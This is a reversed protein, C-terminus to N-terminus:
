GLSDMGAQQMAHLLHQDQSAIHFPLWERLAALAQRAPGPEGQELAAGAHHLGAQMRAHQERHLHADACQCADMWQEEQRFDQGVRAVLQHYAARCQGSPLALTADILEFLQQHLHELEQQPAIPPPPM